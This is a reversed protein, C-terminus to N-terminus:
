KMAGFARDLEEGETSGGPGSGGGDLELRQVGSVVEGIGGEQGPEREADVSAQGLKEPVLLRGGEEVDLWGPAVRRKEALDRERIGTTWREVLERSEREM